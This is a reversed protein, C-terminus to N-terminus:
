NMYSAALCSCGSEPIIQCQNMTTGIGYAMKEMAVYGKKLHPLLEQIKM